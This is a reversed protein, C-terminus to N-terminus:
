HRHLTGAHQLTSIVPNEVEHARLTPIGPSWPGHLPPLLTIRPHSHAQPLRSRRWSTGSHSRYAGYKGHGQLLCQGVAFSCKRRWALLKQWAHTMDYGIRIYIRMLGVQKEMSTIEMRGEILLISPLSTPIFNSSTFNRFRSIIALFRHRATKGARAKGQHQDM